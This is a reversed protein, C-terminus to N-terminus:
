GEKEKQASARALLSAICLAIAPTAGCVQARLGVGPGFDTIVPEALEARPTLKTGDLMVRWAWGEPVLTLAADISATYAPARFQEDGRVLWGDSAIAFGAVTAAGFLFSRRSLEIRADTERCPGELKRLREVLDHM